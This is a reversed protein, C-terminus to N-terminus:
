ESPQLGGHQSCDAHFRSRGLFGSRWIGWVYLAVRGGVVFGSAGLQYFVFLYGGFAFTDDDEGGQGEKM